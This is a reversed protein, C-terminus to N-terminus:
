AVVLDVKEVSRLAEISPRIDEYLAPLIKSKDGEDQPNGSFRVPTKLPAYRSAEEGMIGIFGIKIGSKTTLVHYRKIPLNSTGEGTLAALDDDLPSEADFHMNTSVIQPMGGKDRAAKIARAFAAPGLDFEHNGPCMVDYELAKMITFDPATTEFSVQPFAGQTEDGASVTVTDIGAAKAAAREKALVTARRLVSGKIAGTGATTKTPFDDIEPGFGFLHSHEDNTHFIVLRRETGVSADPKSTGNGGGCALLMGTCMTLCAHQHVRHM